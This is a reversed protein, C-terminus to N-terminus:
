VQVLCTPAFHITRFKIKGTENCIEDDSIGDRRWKSESNDWWMVEASPLVFSNPTNHFSCTTHWVTDINDGNKEVETVEAATQKFPYALKKL